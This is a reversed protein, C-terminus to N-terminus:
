SRDQVSFESVLRALGDLHTLKNRDLRLRRCQGTEIDEPVAILGSESRNIEVDEEASEM